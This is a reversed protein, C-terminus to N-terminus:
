GRKYRGIVGQFGLDQLEAAELYTGAYPNQGM